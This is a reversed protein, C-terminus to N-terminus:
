GVSGHCAFLEGGGPQVVYDVRRLESAVGAADLRRRVEDLAPHRVASPDLLPFVRVEGATVRALEVLAAVHFAVDLRDAWCFLLHSSLTIAFTRDAFPLSPLAAAVYPGGLGYSSAFREYAGRRVQLHHDAAGFWRWEYQDPRARSAGNARVVDDGARRLLAERDMAYALDAGVVAGGAAAAEAVFSAAGAPCDLIRGAALEDDTLGFMAQYEALSRASVLIDGALEPSDSVATVTGPTRLSPVTAPASSSTTDSTKPGVKWPSPGESPWRAANTRRPRQLRAHEHHSVGYVHRHSSWSGSTSSWGIGTASTSADTPAM